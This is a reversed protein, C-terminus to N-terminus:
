ALNRQFKRRLIAATVYIAAVMCILVVATAYQQPETNPVSTTLVYLHFPLAMVPEFLDPTIFRKSFVVATFMIPATEGAARGLSLVAGTIIGSAAAPLVARFITQTKTAGLGLSAERLSDPVSKLAEETTKIITPLIMLALCIMGALLCIGWGLFIVFFAFGFVGFVVSPTGSLLDIGTRIGATIRSTKAYEHLYVAAGAGIPLAILIAGFVLEVTGVIAPFIGGARGLDKPSETLFEWSIAPIGNIFINGLIVALIALVAFTGLYICAFAIKETVRPPIRVPLEPLTPLTFLQKGTEIRRTVFRSALNVALTIALLVVAIGFLAYYHMSGASVEALEIGLTATLTRIPSLVDWLPSPIVASNGAVMMVAMTEGLARGMGLVVAASIGSAAAPLLVRSITQFRTAGLGLSAERFDKPVASLADESISVITPLAMIGLLISAAAWSFGSPVDFVKQLFSCLVLMGFFGYVVSPIGALLEIAPKVADRLKKPAVYALFVASLLGLPISFLMAGATVLLTGVILAGIGYSPNTGTPNWDTGFLFGTLGVEFFVPLATILLYGLIFIVALSAFLASTFWVGRMGNEGWSIKKIM